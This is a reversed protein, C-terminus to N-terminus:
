RVLLNNDLFKEEDVKIGLKSEAGGDPVRCSWSVFRLTMSLSIWVIWRYWTIICGDRGEELWYIGGGEGHWVM